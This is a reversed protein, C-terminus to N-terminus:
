PTKGQLRKEPKSKLKALGEKAIPNDPDLKIAEDYDARCQKFHSKDCHASGRVAYADSVKYGLGIAKDLDEIVRDPKNMFNNVLGRFFLAEANNPERTVVVSLNRYALNYKRSLYYETGRLLFFETEQPNLIIAESFDEIAREHDKKLGFAKG